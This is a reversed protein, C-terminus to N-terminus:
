NQDSAAVRQGLREIQEGLAGRHAQHVGEDVGIGTQQGVSGGAPLTPQGIPRAASFHIEELCQSLRFVLDDPHRGHGPGVQLVGASQAFSVRSTQVSSLLRAGGPSRTTSTLIHM